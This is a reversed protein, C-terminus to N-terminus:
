KGKSTSHILEFQMQDSTANELQFMKLGIVFMWLTFTFITIREILGFLLSHNAMALVSSGGSIFIIAVSIISYLVYSKMEPINRFWLGIGLLAVMTGLSAIGAMVFHMIGTFSTATGGPEQAFALEMLIGAVGVLVLALSGVFGSIRGRSQSNVKLFLGVGFVTLLINYVLFSSSLLARNPAGDAVLESIAMSIHSYGPRLLGGLIMTGVYIVAAFSGCLMLLKKM